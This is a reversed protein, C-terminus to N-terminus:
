AGQNYTVSTEKAAWTNSSHVYGLTLTRGGLQPLSVVPIFLNLSGTGLSLQEHANQELTGTQPPGPAVDPQPANLTTAPDTNQAYGQASPFCASLLLLVSCSKWRNV